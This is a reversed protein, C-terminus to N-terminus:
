RSTKMLATLPSELRLIASANAIEPALFRDVVYSPIKLRLMRRAESTGIGMRQNGFFEFAQAALLYEIALIQYLNDLAGHLELAATTGLSLHDEQAGSTVFNDVVAPQAKRRNDAALSAATYHAIMLGSNVGPKAVLFPPLGSVLPNLLRDMRRESVGGFEAVAIRLLDAAM